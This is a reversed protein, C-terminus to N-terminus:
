AVALKFLVFIVAIAPVGSLLLLSAQPNPRTPRRHIIFIAACLLSYLVLEVVGRLYFASGVIHYFAGAIGGLSLWYHWTQFQTRSQGWLRRWNPMALIITACVLVLAALGSWMYAAADWALYHWLTPDSALLWVVHGVLAIAVGYSIIQHVRNRRGLGIDLFLYLMGAFTLFGAANGVDWVWGGSSRPEALFTLGFVLTTLIFAM